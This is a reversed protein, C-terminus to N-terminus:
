PNQNGKSQKPSIGTSTESLRWILRDCSGCQGKKGNPLGKWINDGFPERNDGCSAEINFVKSSDKASLNLFSTGFSLFSTRLRGQIFNAISDSQSLWASMFDRIISRSSGTVSQSSFNISTYESMLKFNSSMQM